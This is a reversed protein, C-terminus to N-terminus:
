KTAPSAAPAIQLSNLFTVIKNEMEPNAFVPGGHGAGDLLIPLNKVGAQGLAEHLRQGQAVPVLDDMIGHAIIVPPNGAKVYNIPSAVVAKDFFHERPPGLLKPVVDHFLALGNTSHINELDGEMKNLDTPGYFDLIALPKISPDVGFRPESRALGLLLSLHGGASGGGVIVQNSSVGFEAAHTVIFNMAANCDEIQAPFPAQTSPRYDISAIAYGHRVLFKVDDWDKSGMMWAGGHIWVLLPCPQPGKNQPLYLDFNQNTTAQDRYPINKRVVAEGYPSSAPLIEVAGNSSSMEARAGPLLVCLSALILLWRSIINM